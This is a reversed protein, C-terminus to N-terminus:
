ARYFRVGALKQAKVKGDKLLKALIERSNQSFNLIDFESQPRLNLMKLLEDESLDQLNMSLNSKSNLSNESLGSNESSNTQRKAIFIPAATIFNALKELHQFNVAKVPYAAPRDISSIDIRDPKIRSFAENLAIFEHENDNFGQVVLVEMVLIGKFKARFEIMKEILLELNISKHARDIRFFTRSIVSDLSFKVVDLGLLAEFNEGLVASGNSLILTKKDNKVLNLANVLEKLHPYLSPEGNATLTIFDFNPNKAIAAKIESIIDEIKPSQHQMLIPKSASLECYVCDFNCQKKGPSLDVGLSRGFRRSNVIGFVISM